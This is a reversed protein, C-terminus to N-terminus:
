VRGGGRGKGLCHVAGTGGGFGSSTWYTGWGFGHGRRPAGTWGHGRQQEPTNCFVEYELGNWTM